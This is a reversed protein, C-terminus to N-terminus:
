LDFRGLGPEAPLSLDWADVEKLSGADYIHIKDAFAYLARGDPSFRLHLYYYRPEPDITWRISRAITHTELDYQIFTPEGIEFRDVLKKATRAVVVMFRNQPDVDFALVRVHVGPSGLTFTDVTQRTAIDIVEFHEQDASQVYFRTADHSLRVTWALGTKLPVEGVVKETAEDIAVLRKAYSALYITGTGAALKSPDSGELTAPAAAALARTLGLAGALVPLLAGRM